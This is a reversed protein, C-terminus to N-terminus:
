FRLALRVFVAREFVQRVGATGFEPHSRHLLNQGTVSLELNPRPQWAMRLDM